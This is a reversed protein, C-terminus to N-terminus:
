RVNGTNYSEAQLLEHKISDLEEELNSNRVQLEMVQSELLELPIEKYRSQLELLKKEYKEKEMEYFNKLHRVMEM